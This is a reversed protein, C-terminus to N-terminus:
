EKWPEISILEISKGAMCTNMQSTVRYRIWFKRGDKQYRSELQDPILREGNKLKFVYRCGDLESLDRVVAKEGRDTNNTGSFSGCTCLLFSFCPLLLWKM